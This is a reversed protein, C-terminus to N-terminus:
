ENTLLIFFLIIFLSLIRLSSFFSTFGEFYIWYKYRNNMCSCNNQINYYFNYVNKTMYINLLLLVFLVINNTLIYQNFYKKKYIYFIFYLTLIFIELLEYFKMFDINVYMDKNLNFCGCKEVILLYYYSYFLISFSIIFLLYSLLINTM